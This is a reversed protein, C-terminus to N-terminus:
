AAARNNSAKRENTLERKVRNIFIRLDEAQEYKKSIARWFNWCGTCMTYKHVIADYNMYLNAKGEEKLDMAWLGPLHRLHVRRPISTKGCRSCTNLMTVPNEHFLWRHIKTKHKGNKYIPASTRYFGNELHREAVISLWKRDNSVYSHASVIDSGWRISDFM